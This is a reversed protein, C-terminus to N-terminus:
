IIVDVCAGSDVVSPDTSCGALTWVGTHMNFFTAARYPTANGRKSVQIGRNNRTQRMAVVMGRVDNGNKDKVFACSTGYGDVGLRKPTLWVRVRTTKYALPLNVINRARSAATTATNYSVNNGQCTGLAGWYTRAMPKWCRKTADFGDIRVIGPNTGCVASYISVTNVNASGSTPTWTCGLVNFETYTAYGGRRVETGGNIAPFDAYGSEVTSFVGSSSGPFGANAWTGASAINTNSGDKIEISSISLHANTDLSNTGSPPCSLQFVFRLANVTTSM